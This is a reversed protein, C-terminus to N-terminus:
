TKVQQNVSTIASRKLWFALSMQLWAVRKELAFAIQKVPSLGLMRRLTFVLMLLSLLQLLCNFM